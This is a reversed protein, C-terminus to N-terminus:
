GCSLAQTGVLDVAQDALTAHALHIPSAICSQLANNSDLNQGGFKAYLFLPQAAKFLLRLDQSSQAMRVKERNIVDARLIARMKQNRFQQFAFAQPLPQFFARERQAFRHFQSYLDGLSKGCGVFFADHM